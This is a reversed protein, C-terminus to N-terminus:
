SGVKPIYRSPCKAMLVTAMFPEEPVYVGEVVVEAGDKFTDPIVGKYRVPIKEKGDTVLFQLVRNSSNWEISGEVVKGGLRVGEGRYTEKQAYLEGVKLYYVMSDRMGAYVLYAMALFIITGGIIFRKKRKFM